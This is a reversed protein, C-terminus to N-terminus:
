SLIACYKILDYYLGIGFYLLKLNNIKIFSLKETNDTFYFIM